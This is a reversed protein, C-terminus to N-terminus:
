KPVTEYTKKRKELVIEKGRKEEEEGKLYTPM